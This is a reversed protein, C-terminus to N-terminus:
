WLGPVGYPKVLLPTGPVLYGRAMMEDRDHPRVHICGHSQLILPSVEDRWSAGTQSEWYEDPATTHLYYPTRARQLKLNWAWRGFDNWIWEPRLKNREDHSFLSIFDRIHDHTPPRRGIKTYTHRWTKSVIGHPGTAARWEGNAKFYLDTHGDHQEERLEAGFPIVSMIWNRTVHHERHGLTYLGAPTPEAWHLGTKDEHRRSPGCVAEYRERRGGIVYIHGYTSTITEDFPKQKELADPLGHKYTYSKTGEGPYLFLIVSPEQRLVKAVHRRTVSHLDHNGPAGHRVHTERSYACTVGPVPTGIRSNTDPDILPSNALTGVSGPGSSNGM